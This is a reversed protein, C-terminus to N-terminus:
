KEHKLKSNFKYLVIKRGKVEVVQAKTQEALTSATEKLDVDVNQLVGIKILEHTNFADFCSKITKETVGEKGIQVIVPLLQAEGRLKAREKSQMIEGKNQTILNLTELCLQTVM